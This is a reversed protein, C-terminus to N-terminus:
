GLGEATVPPGRPQVGQESGQSSVQGEECQWRPTLFSGHPQLYFMALVSAPGPSCGVVAQCCSAAWPGELPVPWITVPLGTAAAHICPTNQNSAPRPPSRLACLPQHPPPCLFGLHIRAIGSSFQAMPCGPPRATGLSHQPRCAGWGSTPIARSGPSSITRGAAQGGPKGRASDGGPCPHPSIAIQFHCQLSWAGLLVQRPCRGARRAGQPQVRHTEAAQRSARQTAPSPSRPAHNKEPFPLSAAPSQCTKLLPFADPPFCSFWSTNRSLIKHYHPLCWVPTKIPAAHEQGTVQTQM